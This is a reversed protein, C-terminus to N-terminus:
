KVHKINPTPARYRLNLSFITYAKVTDYPNQINDRKLSQTVELMTKQIHLSLDIDCSQFLFILILVHIYLKM